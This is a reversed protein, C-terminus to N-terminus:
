SARFRIRGRENSVLVQGAPLGTDDSECLLGLAISSGAGSFGAVWGQGEEADIHRSEISLPVTVYVMRKNGNGMACVENGADALKNGSSSLMILRFSKEADSKIIALSVVSVSLLALSILCLALYELSIQGKM